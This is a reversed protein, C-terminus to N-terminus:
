RQTLEGSCIIKDEMEYYKIQSNLKIINSM